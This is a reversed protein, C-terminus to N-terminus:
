KSWFSKLNNPKGIKQNHAYRIFTIGSIKINKIDENNSKSFNKKLKLSFLKQIYGYLM